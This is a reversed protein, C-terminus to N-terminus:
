SAREPDHFREAEDIEAQLEALRRRYEAKAKSDLVSGADGHGGVSLEAEVVEGSGGGHGEVAGVLDLASVEQDPRELLHQIHRLGKSDRLPTRDAGLGVIWMEGQRHWGGTNAAM